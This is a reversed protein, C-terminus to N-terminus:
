EPRAPTLIVGGKKLDTLHQDMWDLSQSSLRIFAMPNEGRTAANAYRRFEQDFAFRGNRDSLLHVNRTRIIRIRNERLKTFFTEGPRNDAPPFYVVVPNRRISRMANATVLFQDSNFEAGPYAYDEDMIWFYVDRQNEPLADYWRQAQQPSRARLVIPIPEGFRQLRNILEPNPRQDFYALVSAIQAPRVASTDPILSVSRILTNGRVIGIKISQEPFTVTAYTRINHPYLKRALEAHLWTRSIGQPIHVEYSKRTFNPTVTTERANISAAPINFLSLESIILSDMEAMTGASLQRVDHEYSIILWTFMSCLILLLVLIKKKHHLTKAEQDSM